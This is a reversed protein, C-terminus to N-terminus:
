DSLDGEYLSDLVAKFKLNCHKRKVKLSPTMEGTEQSFDAEMVAFRKLTSYSPLEANVKNIIEQVAAQIEPRRTLEAYSAPPTVGKEALLKRAPEESV